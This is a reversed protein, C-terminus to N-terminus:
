KRTRSQLLRLTNGGLVAVCEAHTLGAAVLSAEAQDRMTMPRIPWDSGLLVHDVGLLQVAFRIAAPDFGMTDIYLRHRMISPSGGAWGEERGRESDFIGAFMLASASIMPVVLQLTPLIDFIGARLLALISVAAETGRALLTGLHGAQQMLRPTYGAPSIPHVFVPIGLAAAAELTPRASATDLFRDGQSCDVCIGGLGLEGIAREVDQAAANGQFADITALGRLRTPYAAILEAFRENMHRIQDSPLSMGPKAISGIPASLVKITMGAADMADLQAPLDTLLKWSRAVVPPSATSTSYWAADYYHSHFDVMPPASSLPMMDGTPNLQTLLLYREHEAKDLISGVVPM